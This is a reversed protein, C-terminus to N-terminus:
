VESWRRRVYAAFVVLDEVKDIINILDAETFRDRGNRGMKVKRHLINESFITLAGNYGIDFWIDAPEDGLPFVLRIRLIPKTYLTMDVSLSGDALTISNDLSGSRSYAALASQISILEAEKTPMSASTTATSNVGRDSAVTMSGFKQNGGWPESGDVMSHDILSALRAYQRLIPLIEVLQRPHEFPIERLHCAPDDGLPFSLVNMFTQSTQTGDVSFCPLVKKRRVRRHAFDYEAENRPGKNTTTPILLDHFQDMQLVNPLSDTAPDLEFKARILRLIANPLIIPPNFRAMFMTRAHRQNSQLGEPQSGDMQNAEAFKYPPLLTDPPELWDLLPDTTNTVLEIPSFKEISQSIWDQSVRALPFTESETKECEVLLSWSRCTNTSEEMGLRPRSEQWYDLSLGVHDRDNMSPRGSKACTVIRAIHEDSRSSWVPDARAKSLEWTYLRQLSEYIGAIAAYCDLAPYISLKDLAALRELNLAFDQLSKNLLSEHPQVQLTRLLIPGATKVHKTVTNPSYIFSLSCKTVLNNVFVIDISFGSGAIILTRLTGANGIEDEWLCELGKISKALREIGQESVRGKNADFTQQIKRIVEVKGVNKSSMSEDLGGMGTLPITSLPPIAALAAATNPSDVNIGSLASGASQGHLVGSGAPSKKFPLPSHPSAHFDVPSSQINTRSGHPFPPAAFPFTTANPPSATVSTYKSTAVM